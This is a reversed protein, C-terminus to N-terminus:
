ANQTVRAVGEGDVGRLLFRKVRSTHGTLLHIQSKPLGFAQALVAIIATNAKGKEPKETVAVKLMGGHEGLIGTRKAGAQARVTLVVGDDRSEFM